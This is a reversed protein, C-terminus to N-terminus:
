PLPNFCTELTWSGSIAGGFGNDKGGFTVSEGPQLVQTYETISHSGNSQNTSGCPSGFNQWGFAYVGPEYIEGDILFEDDVSANVTVLAAVAFTNTVTEVNTITACVGLAASFSGSATDCCPGEQCVGDCCYEGEQCCTGAPGGCCCKGQQGGSCTVGGCCCQCCPM